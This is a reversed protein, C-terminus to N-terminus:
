GYIQSDYFKFVNNFKIPLKDISNNTNYITYM